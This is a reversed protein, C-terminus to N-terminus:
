PTPATGGLDTEWPIAVWPSDDDVLLARRADTFTAGSSMTQSYSWFSRGALYNSSLDQWSDFTSQMARAAPMIRSWAEADSLYGGTYGQGCLWVYRGYDWGSISKGALRSGQAVAVDIQNQLEPDGGTSGVLQQMQEPTAISVYAALEDFSRRHGGAEIWALTELLQDRNEIGWWQALLQRVAAANKDSPEFGGLLDHRGGNSETLLACTALAWM